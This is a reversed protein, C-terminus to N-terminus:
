AQVPWDWILERQRRAQKTITDSWPGALCGRQKALNCGTSGEALRPGAISQALPYIHPLTNSSTTACTRGALPLNQEGYGNVGEVGCSMLRSPDGDVMYPALVDMFMMGGPVLQPGHTTANSFAGGWCYVAAFAVNQQNTGVANLEPLCPFCHAPNSM